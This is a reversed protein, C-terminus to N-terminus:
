NKKLLEGTDLNYKYEIEHRSVDKLEIEFIKTGDKVELTWEDLRYADGADAHADNFLNEIKFLDDKTLAVKTSDKTDKKYKIKEGTIADYTAEHEDNTDSGELEYVYGLEKLTLEINYLSVGDFEEIYNDYIDIVSFKIKESYDIGINQGPKPTENPRVVPVDNPKSTEPKDSQTCGVLLFISLISILVKKSLKM